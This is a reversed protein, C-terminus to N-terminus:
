QRSRQHPAPIPPEQPTEPLEPHISPASEVNEPEHTKNSMNPVNEVPQSPEPDNRSTNSSQPHSKNTFRENEGEVTAEEPELALSKNFYVDGEISVHNKGPWYIRYGKSENDIGVFCCEQARPELKGIDLRKVWAKCGWPCVASLDPKKGTGIKHPTKMEPIAHMPVWNRIWVHHCVVEAWLNKPLGAADIM